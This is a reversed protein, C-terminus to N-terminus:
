VGYMLAERVGYSRWIRSYQTNYVLAYQVIGYTSLGMHLIRFASENRVHALRSDADTQKRVHGM